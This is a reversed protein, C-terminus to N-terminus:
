TKSYGYLGTLQFLNRTIETKAILIVSDCPLDNSWISTKDLQAVKSMALNIAANYTIPICSATVIFHIHCKAWIPLLTEAM